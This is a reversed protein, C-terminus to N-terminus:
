AIWLLHKFLRHSKWLGPFGRLCTEDRPVEEVRFLIEQFHDVGARMESSEEEPSGRAGSAGTASPLWGM